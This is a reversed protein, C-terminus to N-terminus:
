CRCTFSCVASTQKSTSTTGSFWTVSDNNQVLSLMDLADGLTQIDSSFAVILSIINVSKFKCIGRFVRVVFEEGIIVIHMPLM